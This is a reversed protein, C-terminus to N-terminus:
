SLFVRGNALRGKQQGDVYITGDFLPLGDNGVVTGYVRFTGGPSVESELLALPKALYTGLSLIHVPVLKEEPYCPNTVGLFYREYESSTPVVQIGGAVGPAVIEMAPSSTGEQEEPKGYVRVLSDQANVRWS